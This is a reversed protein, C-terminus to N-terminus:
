KMFYVIWFIFISVPKVNKENLIEVFSVFFYIKYVSTSEFLDKAVSKGADIITGWGRRHLMWLTTCFIIQTFLYELLM